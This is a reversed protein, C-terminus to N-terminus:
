DQKLNGQPADSGVKKLEKYPRSLRIEVYSAVAAAAAAVAPLVGFSNTTIVYGAAVPLAGWSVAFWFNTHFRGNWLEFNYALLFFGELIAVIALAPAHLVIYYTGIAYAAALSGAMLALMQRRTFYRGWPKAKKSGITDAAHAGVGLALAYILAIAGAREWHVDPALMAGIVTFSVCMGTYPLFMLGVFARFRPPGFRPVFWENLRTESTM